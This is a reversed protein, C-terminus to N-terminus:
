LWINQSESCSCRLLFTQVVLYRSSSDVLGFHLCLFSCFMTVNNSGMNTEMFVEPPFQHLVSIHVLLRVSLVFVPQLMM